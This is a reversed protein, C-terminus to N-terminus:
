KRRQAESGREDVSDGGDAVLFGGGDLTFRNRGDQAALIHQARGLGARALGGSKHQRQQLRQEVVAVTRTLQM